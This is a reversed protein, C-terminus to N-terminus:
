NTQNPDIRYSRRVRMIKARNMEPDSLMKGIDEIDRRLAAIKMAGRAVLWELFGVAEAMEADPYAKQATSLERESM